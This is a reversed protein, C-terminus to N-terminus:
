KIFQKLVEVRKCFLDMKIRLVLLFEFVTYICLLSIFINKCVLTGIIIFNISFQIKAAIHFM